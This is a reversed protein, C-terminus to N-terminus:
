NSAWLAPLVALSGAAMFPIFPIRKKRTLLAFAMGLACAAGLCAHLLLPGFIVGTLGAYWADALGLKKGSAFYALLFIGAGILGGALPGLPMLSEAEAAKFALALAIAGWLLLRPVSGTRIDLFSIYASFAIYAALFVAERM